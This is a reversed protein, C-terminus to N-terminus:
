RSPRARALRNFSAIVEGAAREGTAIAGHVTGGGSGGCTAEGAFFLTRAIPAALQSSARAGGVIAYTYAGRAYPDRAWDHFSWADLEEEIRARPVRWSHSLSLLVRELMSTPSLSLLQEAAPGGSWATLVPAQLPLPTWWTLVPASPSHVFALRELRTNNGVHMRKADTWFPHRFRLVVKAVHGMALHTIPTRKAELPPDFGVAGPQDLSTQLVGLPLAVVLRAARFAELGYGTTTHARVSVQSPKWTVDRVISNLHVEGTAPDIRDRLWAVVRDYGGEVRFMRLADEDGDTQMQKLARASARDAHAAYFGEVYSRAFARARLPVRAGTTAMVDAFSRDAGRLRALPKMGAALEADFDEIEALNGEDSFWHAGTAEHLPLDADRLIERLRSPKGHVFEAGLEAPLQRVTDRTTHVRGGVRSRAELVVVRLGHGTLAGAAALGAVGAGLVIVDVAPRLPVERRRSM